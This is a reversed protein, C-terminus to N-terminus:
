SRRCASRIFQDLMCGAETLIDKRCGWSAGLTFDESVDPAAPDRMPEIQFPRLARDVYQSLIALVEAKSLPALNEELTRCQRSM